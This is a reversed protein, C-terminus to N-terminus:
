RKSRGPRMASSHYYDSIIPDTFKPSAKTGKKVLDDFSYYHMYHQFILQGTRDFFGGNKRTIGPYNPLFGGNQDVITMGFTDIIEGTMKNRLYRNPHNNKLSASAPILEYNEGLQRHHASSVLKWDPQIPFAEYNLATEILRAKNGEIALIHSRDGTTFMVYSGNPHIRTYKIGEKDYPAPLEIYQRRPVCSSALSTRTISLTAIVIFFILIKGYTM